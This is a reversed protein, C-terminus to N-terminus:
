KEKILEHLLYKAVEKKAINGSRLHISYFDIGRTIKQKVEFTLTYGNNMFFPRVKTLDYTFDIKHGNCEIWSPKKLQIFFNIKLIGDPLPSPIVTSFRQQLPEAIQKGCKMMDIWVQDVCMNGKFKFIKNYDETM